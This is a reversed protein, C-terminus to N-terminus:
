RGAKGRQRNGLLLMAVAMVVLLGVRLYEDPQFGGRLAYIAAAVAALASAVYLLIQTATM